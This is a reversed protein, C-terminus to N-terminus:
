LKLFTKILKTFNIRLEIERNYFKIINPLIIEKGFFNGECTIIQRFPFSIFIEFYNIIEFKIIFINPLM